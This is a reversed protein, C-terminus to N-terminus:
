FEEKYLGAKIKGWCVSLKGGPRVSLSKINEGSVMVNDFHPHAKYTILGIRGNKRFGEKDKHNFVEDDNIFGQYNNDEIVVKLHYTEGIEIKVPIDQKIHEYKNNIWKSFQPAMDTRIWFRFGNEGKQDARVLLGACDKSGGGAFSEVLTVDCEVTYDTWAEEGAMTKAYETWGTEAYAKEEVRWKGVVVEWDDARGDDFDYKWTGAFAVGISFMLLLLSVVIFKIRM